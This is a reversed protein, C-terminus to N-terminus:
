GARHTQDLAQRKGRLSVPCKISAKHFAQKQQSLKQAKTEQPLEEADQTERVCLRQEKGM